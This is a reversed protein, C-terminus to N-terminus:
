ILVSGLGRHQEYNSLISKEESQARENEEKAEKARKLIGNEGTLM